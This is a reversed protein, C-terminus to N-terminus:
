INPLNYLSRAPPIHARAARKPSGALFLLNWTPLATELPFPQSKTEVTPHPYTWNRPRLTSALRRAKHRSFCSFSHVPLSAPVAPLFRSPCGCRGWPTQGLGVPSPSHRPGWPQGHSPHCLHPTQSHPPSLPLPAPSSLQPQAGVKCFERSKVATM